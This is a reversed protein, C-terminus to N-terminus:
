FTILLNRLVCFMNQFIPLYRKYEGVVFQKLMCHMRFSSMFTAIMSRRM